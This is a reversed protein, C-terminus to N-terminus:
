KGEDMNTMVSFIPDRLHAHFVCISCQINQHKSGDIEQHELPRGTTSM